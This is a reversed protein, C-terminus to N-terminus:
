VYVRRNYIYWEVLLVALAALLVIKWLDRRAPERHTSGVVKYDGVGLELAPRVDSENSDFLNVAFSGLGQEGARVEYVGVDATSTVNFTNLPGRAVDFPAGQPPKVQIREAPTDSRWAVPQGPRVSGSDLSSRAGGLYEIVNLVFVPFSAKTPWNTGVGVKGAPDVITFGLVADEYGERPAIAFMAGAQTDILTTGGSPPFLPTGEVILVDGMAVIHMLPHAHDVDIIQPVDVKADAKWDGGLPLQGIFLTNAQPMQEPRCRDYIVVDYGGGDAQKRYDPKSLFDATRITVDALERVRDTGLARELYEDDDQKVLLVKGRRRANITTWAANDIALADNADISLKLVGTEVSEPNYEVGTSDGPEIEIRKADILEGDLSLEANVSVKEGGHNDLRAFAQLHDLNDEGRATTFAAIAVNAADQEGIIVYVPELHGFSFDKVKPFKGDSFIYLRAPEAEAVQVDGADERNSSRGPNALGSAVRLAEALSTSRDTQQIAELRRHLERPEESFSQEVKAGDSFSVLMAVDGTRMEDILEGVRKKAEDLRTPEVDTAGMSASNDVLFIFRNGILRKGQITPRLLTWAVLGIFLLQLYLLLSRRLRQWVSNVRLDEISKHWLYTSPVELPQRKLKLFYLLVILIPVLGLLLWQWAMLMGTREFLLGSAKAGYNGATEFINGLASRM